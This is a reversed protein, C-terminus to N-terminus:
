IHGVFILTKGPHGVAHFGPRVFHGNIEKRPKHPGNPTEEGWSSWLSGVPTGGLQEPLKKRPSHGVPHCRPISGGSSYVLRNILYTHCIGLHLTPSDSRQNWCCKM